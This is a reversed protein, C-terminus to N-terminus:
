LNWPHPLSTPTHPLSPILLITPYPPLSFSLSISFCDIQSLLSFLSKAFTHVFSAVFCKCARNLQTYMSRPTTQANLPCLCPPAQEQGWQVQRRHSNPGVKENQLPFLCAWLPLNIHGPDHPLQQCLLLPMFHFKSGSSMAEFKLQAM